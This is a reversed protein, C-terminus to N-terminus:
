MGGRVAGVVALGSAALRALLFDAVEGPHHDLPGARQAPAFLAGPNDAQLVHLLNALPARQDGLAALDGTPHDLQVAAHSLGALADWPLFLEQYRVRLALAAGPAM